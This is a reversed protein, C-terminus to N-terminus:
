YARVPCIADARLSSKCWHGAEQRQFRRRPRSRFTILSRGVAGTTLPITRSQRSVAKARSGGPLLHEGGCVPALGRLLSAPNLDASAGGSWFAVALKAAENIPIIGRARRIQSGGRHRRTDQCAWRGRRGGSQVDRVWCHWCSAMTPKHGKSTECLSTPRLADLAQLYLRHQGGWGTRCRDGLSGLGGHTFAWEQGLICVECIGGRQSRGRPRGGTTRIGPGTGNIGVAKALSVGIPGPSNGRGNAM